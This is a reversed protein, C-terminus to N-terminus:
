FPIKRIVDYSQVAGKWNELTYDSKGNAYHNQKYNLNRIGDVSANCLYYINYLRM